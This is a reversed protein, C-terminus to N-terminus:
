SDPNPASARGMRWFQGQVLEITWQAAASAADAERISESARGSREIGNACKRRAKGDWGSRISRGGSPTAGDSGLKGNQARHRGMAAGKASQIPYRVHNAM